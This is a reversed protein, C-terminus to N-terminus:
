KNSIRVIKLKKEKMMEFEEQVIIMSFAVDQNDFKEQILGGKCIKWKKECKKPALIYITCTM